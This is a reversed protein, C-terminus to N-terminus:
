DEEVPGFHQSPFNNDSGKIKGKGTSGNSGKSTAKKRSGGGGGGGDFFAMAYHAALDKKDHKGM